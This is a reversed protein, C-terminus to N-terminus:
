RNLYSLINDTVYNIEENNINASSPLVIIRSFINSSINQISRPCKLYPPQLHIPRWYHRINIKRQHMFSLFENIEFSKNKKIMIANLWNSSNGFEDPEIFQINKNDEFNKLYLQKIKLKKSLIMEFCEVQSLGLAAHLNSIRYNFGLEDHIYDLTKRATSALHRVKNVLEFNKSFFLGGGGTTIIKNGNFSIIGHDISQGLSKNKYFSGLGGAADSIIKLNFDKGIKTVQDLDPPFGFVHVPIIGFVRKNLKKHYTFGNKKITKNELEEKILNTNITCTKPNIDIIWPIGGAISIANPTAIFTYSPIIVLDDKKIGSALLALHLASTGSNTTTLLESDIELLNALSEEFKNVFPGVSSVFNSDICENLYKKANEGIFPVSIDLPYRIM